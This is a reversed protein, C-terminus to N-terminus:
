EVVKIPYFGVPPFRQHIPAMTKPFISLFKFRQGMQEPSLLYNYASDIEQVVKDNGSNHEVLKQRRVDIGLQFFNLKATKYQIFFIPVTFMQICSLDPKQISFIHGPHAFSSFNQAFIHKCM